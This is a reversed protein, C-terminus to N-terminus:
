VVDAESTPVCGADKHRCPAAVIHKLMMTGSPKVGVSIFLAKRFPAKKRNGNRSCHENGASLFRYNCKQENRQKAQQEKVHCPLGNRQEKIQIGKTRREHLSYRYM